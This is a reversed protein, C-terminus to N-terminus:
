QPWRLFSFLEEGVVLRALSVLAILVLISTIMTLLASM